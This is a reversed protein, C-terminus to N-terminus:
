CYAATGSKQHKGHYHHLRCTVHVVYMKQAGKAMVEWWLRWPTIPWPRAPIIVIEYTWDGCRCLVLIPDEFSLQTETEQGPTTRFEQIDGRTRAHEHQSRWVQLSLSTSTAIFIKMGCCKYEKSHEETHRGANQPMRNNNGVSKPNPDLASHRGDQLHQHGSYLWRYGWAHEEAWLGGSFKIWRLALIVDTATSCTKSAMMKPWSFQSQLTRPWTYLM